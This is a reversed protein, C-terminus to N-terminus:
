GRADGTIWRSTLQWCASITVRKGDARCSSGSSEPDGMEFRMGERILVSPVVQLSTVMPTAMQPPIVPHTPSSDGSHAFTDLIKKDPPNVNNEIKDNEKM